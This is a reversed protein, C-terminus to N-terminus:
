KVDLFLVFFIYAVNDSQSFSIIKFCLWEINKRNLYFSLSLWKVISVSLLCIKNEKGDRRERIYLSLLFCISRRDSLFFSSFFVISPLVKSRPWLVSCCYLIFRAYSAVFPSCIIVLIRWVSINNLLLRTSIIDLRYIIMIRTKSKIMVLDILELIFFFLLICLCM